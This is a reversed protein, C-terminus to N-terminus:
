KGNTVEVVKANVIGDRMDIGIIDDKKLKKSDSVVKNDLKVISYGRKITNM